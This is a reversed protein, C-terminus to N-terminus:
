TTPGKTYNIKNKLKLSLVNQNILDFINKPNSKEKKIYINHTHTHTEDKLISNKKFDLTM